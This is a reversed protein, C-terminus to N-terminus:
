LSCANQLGPVPAVSPDEPAFNFNVSRTRVHFGGQRAALRRNKRINRVESCAFEINHLEADSTSEARFKLRGDAISPIGLCYPGDNAPAKGSHLHYVRYRVRAAELPGQGSEASEAITIDQKLSDIDSRGPLLQSLANAVRRATQFDRQKLAQQSQYIGGHVSNELISKANENNADRALVQKSYAIASADVPEAYKGESYAAAALSALRSIQMPRPKAAPSRPTPRPQYWPQGGSARQVPQFPYGVSEADAPCEPFPSPPHAARDGHRPVRLSVQASVAGNGRRRRTRAPPGNGLEAM